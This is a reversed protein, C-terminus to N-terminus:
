GTNFACDLKFYFKLEDTGIGQTLVCPCMKCLRITSLAHNHNQILMKLKMTLFYKYSVPAFTPHKTELSDLHVYAYRTEMKMPWAPAKPIGATALFTLNVSMKM